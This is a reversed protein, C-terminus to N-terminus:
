GIVSEHLKAIEEQISADLYALYREFDERGLSNKMDYCHKLYDGYQLVNGLAGSDANFKPSPLDDLPTDDQSHMDDSTPLNPDLNYDAFPEFVPSDNTSTSVNPPSDHDSTPIQKFRAFNDVTNSRSQLQRAEERRKRRRIRSPKVISSTRTQPQTRLNKLKTCMNVSIEGNKQVMQLEVDYGRSTLELFKTVFSLIESQQNPEMTAM